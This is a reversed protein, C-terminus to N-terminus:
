TSARAGWPASTPSCRSSARSVKTRATASRCRCCRMVRRALADLHELAARAPGPAIDLDKTPLTPVNMAVLVAVACVGVVRDARGRAAARIVPTGVAIGTCLVVPLLLAFRGPARMGDLLPVSRFVGYPLWSGGPGLRDGFVHASPGLAVIWLAFACGLLALRHRSAVLVLAGLAGVLLFGPFAYGETTRVTEDYLHDLGPAGLVPPPEPAVVPLAAAAVDASYFEYDAGLSTQPDFGAQREARTVQFREVAFPALLVAALVVVLVLRRADAARSAPRASAGVVVALLALAAVLFYASCLYCVVLALATSGLRLRRRGAAHELALGLVLAAPFVFTLSLHSASRNLVVPATALALGATVRTFRDDTLQGAVFRGSAYNLVMATALSANYALVPGLVLGWAAAVGVGFLGDVTLLNLGHPAMFIMLRTPLLDGRTWSRSLEDSVALYFGSDTGHGLLRSRADALVPRMVLALAAVVVLTEVLAARGLSGSAGDAPASPAMAAASTTPRAPVSAAREAPRKVRRRGAASPARGARWRRWAVTSAVGAALVVFASAAALPGHRLPGVHEDLAEALAGVASIALAATSLAAFGVVILRVTVVLSRQRADRARDAVTM